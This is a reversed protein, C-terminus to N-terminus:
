YYFMVPIQRLVDSCFNNLQNAWTEFTYFSGGLERPNIKDSYGYGILDVAYVTVVRTATSWLDPRLSNYGM